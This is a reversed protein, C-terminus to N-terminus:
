NFSGNWTPMNTLYYPEVAPVYYAGYTHLNPTNIFSAENDLKVYFRYYPMYYAETEGTRYILEVKDISSQESLEYPVSTIYQGEKLLQTAEEITIIPYDGAKQSLDTQYIRIMSLGNENNPYFRVRNFHYNIINEIDTKGTEYFSLEYSQNLHIDYDGGSINMIPNELALLGHYNDLLYSAAHSVEDYNSYYHYHYTDPLEVDPLFQITVTLDVAIEVKYKETTFSITTPNLYYEPVEEGKEKLEQQLQNTISAHWRDYELTLSSTDLGLRTAVDLLCAEMKVADAGMPVFYADWTLPNKYVPLTALPMDKTWPNDNVLELIDYVEYGEFGMGEGAMETVTLSPLKPLDKHPADTASTTPAPSDLPLSTQTPSTTAIAEPSQSPSTTETPSATAAPEPPQTSRPTQQPLNHLGINVLLMLCAATALWKLFLYKNHKKKPTTRIADTEELIDDNLLNLADSIHEKKM